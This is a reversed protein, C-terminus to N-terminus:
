LLNVDKIVISMEGVLERKFIEIKPGNHYLGHCILIIFTINLEGELWCDLRDNLGAEVACIAMILGFLLFLKM